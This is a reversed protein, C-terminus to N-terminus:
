GADVVRQAPDALEAPLGHEAPLRDAAHAEAGVRPVGLAVHDAEPFGGRGSSPSETCLARTSLNRPMAAVPNRVTSSSLARSGPVSGPSSPMTRSVWSGPRM